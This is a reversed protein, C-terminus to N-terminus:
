KRFFNIIEIFNVSKSHENLQEIIRGKKLDWVCIRGDSSGSLLRNNSLLKLCAVNLTDLTRLCVGVNINWIKISRDCASILENTCANLQLSNIPAQHDFLELDYAGKKMNWIKITKDSSGSALRGNSLLQLCTVASTHGNLTKFLPHYKM